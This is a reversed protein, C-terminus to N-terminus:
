LDRKLPRVIAVQGAGDNLLRAVLADVHVSRRVVPLERRSFIVVVADGDVIIKAAGLLFLKRSSRTVLGALAGDLAPCVVVDNTKNVLRPDM